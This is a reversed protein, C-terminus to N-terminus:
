MNRNSWCDRIGESIKWSTGQKVNTGGLHTPNTNGMIGRSRKRKRRRTAGPVLHEAPGRTSQEVQREKSRNCRVKPAAYAPPRRTPRDRLGLQYSGKYPHHQPCSPTSNRAHSAEASCAPHVCRLLAVGSSLHWLLDDDLLLLIIHMEM